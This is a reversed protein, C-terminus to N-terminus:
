LVNSFPTKQLIQISHTTLYQGKYAISGLSMGPLKSLFVSMIDCKFV